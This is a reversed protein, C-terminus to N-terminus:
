TYEYTLARCLIFVEKGQIKATDPPINISLPASGIDSEVRDGSGTRLEHCNRFLTADDECGGVKDDRSVDADTPTLGMMAM